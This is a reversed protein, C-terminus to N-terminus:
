SVCVVEKTTCASGDILEGHSAYIEMDKSFNSPIRLTHIKIRMETGIETNCASLLYLLYFIELLIASM